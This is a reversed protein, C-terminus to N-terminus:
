TTKISVRRVMGLTGMDCGRDSCGNPGLGNSGADEGIVAVFKPKNLPLTKNINKLLVTSRAGINRVLSAHSDQVNVHQNVVGSDSHPDQVHLPGVTKLTWSSFNPATDNGVVRGVKFYAAMIRTAM